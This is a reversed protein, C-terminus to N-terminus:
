QTFEIDAICFGFAPNGADATPGGVQFNMGYVHAADWSPFTGATGGYGQQSIGTAFPISIQVWTASVAEAQDAFDDDCQGSQGKGLNVNCTSSTVAGHTQDDPFSIKIAPSGAAGMAMAYFKVGKYPTTDFTTPTAPPAAADPGADPAPGGTVAFNFGQGADFGIFGTSTLCAAHTSAVGSPPTVTTFTYPMGHVPNVAAPNPDSTFTFWTGPTVGTTLGSRVMSGMDLQSGTTAAM